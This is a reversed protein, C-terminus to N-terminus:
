RQHIRRRHANGAVDAIGTGTANLDLRLTGGGSIGNSGHCRRYLRQRVFSLRDHRGDCRNLQACFRRYGCRHCKRLLYRSVHGVFRRHQRLHSRQPRHEVTPRHPRRHLSVPSSAARSRTAWRIPSAPARSNLVLTLSRSGTIGTVNVDYVTGSVPTVTGITATPVSDARFSFDTADVGTVSKSFTVRWTVTAANTTAASPSQRDISSVSPGTSDLTYAQGSTFGGSIANGATDTIGTGSSKLDLRLTGAGSVSNATVTYTAGTSDSGVQTVTAISGAATGTATLSFSSTAVGTVGEAFLVRWTLSTANTPSSAPNSYVISTVTPATFDFTYTQGSTFGGAIANAASDAIGTGSSKLDLRLTGAGTVTSVVVDVTTGSSASVSAITGASAGTATLSFDGTDVGTVNESFTVRYTVSAANTTAATPSQRAISTVTPATTDLNGIVIAKNAGLSGAAGPAPLTPTASTGVANTVSGGNFSLANVSVYDLDASLDGTQVTYSFNLTTTGSGSVYTAIRDTTGTELTLQPSGSVTVAASFTVQLSVTSGAAYTANANSSTVNTVTPGGTIGVGGAGTVTFNITGTQGATYVTVVIVYTTGATLTVNSIQPKLSGGSDDDIAVGNATPNLPDFSNQYLVLVADSITTSTVGLTYTGTVTPVVSQTFYAYSTAGAQFPAVGTISGNAARPRL